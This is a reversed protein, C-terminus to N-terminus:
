KSVAKVARATIVVDFDPDDYDLEEQTLDDKALGHLFSLATLVNGRSQIEVADEGFISGFLRKASAPTFRWFWPNGSEERETRTLGPFTALLVGGPKLMRHLTTVAATPDYIFQLTQPVVACDFMESPVHPADALDAVISARQNGASVHLVHCFAVAKGGFNRTYMDDEIELVCGRIDAAHESYFRGIFYRDIPIGRDIGWKPSLPALRRLAGFDLAAPPTPSAVTLSEDTNPQLRVDSVEVAVPQGGIDFHIRVQHDGSTAVLRGEFERWEPAVEIEEYLGLNKWPDHGQAVGVGLRRPQDARIRFKLIYSRGSEVRLNFRNLQVDYSVNGDIKSIEVRLIDPHDPPFVVGAVNAGAARLWWDLRDM